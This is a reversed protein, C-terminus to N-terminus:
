CELPRFFPYFHNVLQILFKGRVGYFFDRGDSSDSSTGLATRATAKGDWNQLGLTGGLFLNDTVPFLLDAALYLGDAEVEYEGIKIGSNFVDGSQDGFQRYGLRFSSAGGFAYGVYLDSGLNAGDDDVNFGSGLMDELEDAYNGKDQAIGGGILFAGDQDAAWVNGAALAALMILTKKM